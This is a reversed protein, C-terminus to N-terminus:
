LGCHRDFAVVACPEAFHIKVSVMGPLIAHLDLAVTVVFGFYIRDMDLVVVLKCPHTKVLGMRPERARDCLSLFEPNDVDGVNRDCDVKKLDLLGAFDFVLISPYSPVTLDVVINLVEDVVMLALGDIDVLFVDSYIALQTETRRIQLAPAHPISLQM